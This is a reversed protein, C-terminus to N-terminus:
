DRDIPRRGAFGAHIPHWWRVRDEGYQWCLYVLRGERRSPFDVLAPDVGKLEVGLETLEEVAEALKEALADVEQRVRRRKEPDLGDDGLRELLKRREAHDDRIGKVISRVLPLM